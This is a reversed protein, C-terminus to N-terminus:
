RRKRHPKPKPKPVIAFSTRAPQAVNGAADRASAVLQYAGKPLRSALRGSFALKSAGAPLALAVSGKVPLGRTCMTRKTPRRKRTPATCRGGVRVGVAIREASFTVPAAESLTLSVKAPPKKAAAIRALNGAGARFRRPAISLGTLVPATVDAPTVVPPTIVPTMVPPVVPPDVGTIRAVKKSQELTVWLTNGPGATIDRPDGKPLGPLTTAVGDPTIRLLDGAAFEAVWYAGDAGFAVGAPDAAPRDTTQPTGGAVLRGVNYPDINFANTYLVQGGAGAGIGAPGGGVVYPTPTGTTTMSVVRGSRDAIWLLGGSSAIDRADLGTVPFTTVTLPEPLNIRIVDSVSTTWLNGDPGTTIGQPQAIAAVATTTFAAPNAPPVKTISQSATVWLNGDPGNTIGKPNSVGTLDFETISGDPRVRAVKPPVGGVVVWINGDSGQTLKAPTDSVGFAGNLTPAAAANGCAAAMVLLLLALVPRARPM